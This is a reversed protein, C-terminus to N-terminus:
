RAGIRVRSDKDGFVLYRAGERARFSCRAGSGTTPRRGAHLRDTACYSQYSNQAKTTTAGAPVVYAHTLLLPREGLRVSIARVTAAERDTGHRLADGFRGVLVTALTLRSVYTGGYKDNVDTCTQTYAIRYTGTAPLRWLGPAHQVVRAGRKRLVISECDRPLEDQSVSTRLTVLQGRRGDFDLRTADGPPSEVTEGFRVDLTTPTEATVATASTAVPASLATAAIVGALLMGLNRMMDRLVDDCSM